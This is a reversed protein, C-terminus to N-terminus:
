SLHNHHRGCVLQATPLSPPSGCVLPTVHVLNAAAASAFVAQLCCHNHYSWVVTTSLPPLRRRSKSRSPPIRNGDDGANADADDDNDAAANAAAIRYQSRHLLSLERPPPLRRHSGCFPVVASAAASARRCRRHLHCALASASLCPVLAPAAAFM